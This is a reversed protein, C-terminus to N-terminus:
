CGIVAVIRNLEKAKGLAVSHIDISLSKQPQQAVTCSTSIKGCLQVYISPFFGLFILVKKEKKRQTTTVQTM